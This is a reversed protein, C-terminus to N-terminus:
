KKNHRNPGTTGRVILRPEYELRVIKQPSLENQDSSRHEIKELLMGFADEGKPIIFHEVTTLSVRRLGSIMNNDCGVVSYDQPIRFKADALADMIGLAVMDNLGVFATIGQDDERLLQKTLQYGACYEANQPMGSQEEYDNQVKVVVGDGFGQRKFEQQIGELRRTRALLGDAIPTSLYAIKEHGLSLLYQAILIGSKISNLEVADATITEDMDGLVVVPVQGSIKQFLDPYQPLYTYIAGSLMHSMLQIYDAEVSMKRHTDCVLMSYGHSESLKSITQILMTYYPNDLTPCFVAIAKGVSRRGAGCRCGASEYHLQEAAAHVRDVTEPSFSVNIKANLIMSVTSQSVGALKAVDRSTVKGMPM